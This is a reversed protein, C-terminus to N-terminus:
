LDRAGKGASPNHLSSTNANSCSHSKRPRHRARQGVRVQDWNVREGNKVRCGTGSWM